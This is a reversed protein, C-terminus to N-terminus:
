STEPMNPDKQGPLMTYQALIVTVDDEGGRDLALNLLAQATAQPDAKPTLFTAIEENSIYETLGDTCLLLKDDHDLHIHHFEVYVEREDGGLFNTLQHRWSRSEVPLGLDIHHQAVTHDRTLQSLRGAHFLYARSDGVHTIFADGGITYAATVTTAMGKCAPNKRAQERIARDMHHFVVAVRERLDEVERENVIWTWKIAHPTIDWSSRLALMSALEGFAAGGMGDAVAMMYASDDSRPLFGPPLNSRLVKRTRRREVVLYHDENNARSKGPHTVTGFQVAVRRPSPGFQKAVPDIV